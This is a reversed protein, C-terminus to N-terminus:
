IMNPSSIRYTVHCGSAPPTQGRTYSLIARISLISHGTLYCIDSYSVYRIRWNIRYDFKMSPHLAVAAYLVTNAETLAYYKNLKSWALEISSMLHLSASTAFLSKSSELHELLYDITPLMDYLAGNGRHGELELTCRHFPELIVIIDQLEKWDDVDLQDNEM